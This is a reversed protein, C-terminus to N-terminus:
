DLNDILTNLIDAVRCQSEELRYSLDDEFERIRKMLRANETRLERNEYIIDGMGLIIDEIEYRNM